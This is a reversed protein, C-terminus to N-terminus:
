IELMKDPEIYGGCNLCFINVERHPTVNWFSYKVADDCDCENMHNNLKVVENYLEIDAKNAQEGLKRIKDDM